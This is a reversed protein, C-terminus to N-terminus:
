PYPMLASSPIIQKEQGPPTWYLHIRSANETDLYKIQIKHPGATLNITNEIYDVPQPADVVLQDDIFVQAHGNLWLGFAYDGTNPIRITGRWDITYPRQLPIIHYYTDLYPDIRTFAPEGTWNDNQYYAGLLGNPQAPPSQYLWQSQVDALEFKYKTDDPPRWALKVSGSGSDATLLTTHNGIALKAELTQEGQGSGVQSNDITLTATAPTKLIFQYIGSTPAYLLGQWQAVFPQAIPASVPWDATITSEVRTFAPPGASMADSEMSGIWYKSTLGQISRIQEPPILIWSFAPNGNPTQETHYEAQPYYLHSQDIIWQNDLDVIIMVAKDGPEHIPLGNPPILPKTEIAPALFRITEHNNLFVSAYYTVKDPGGAALMKQAALSQIGNFAEWVDNSNAQLGFYTNANLYFILGGAGLTVITLSTQLSPALDLELKRWLTEVALAAFYIVAVTAGISRNAQPAEFDVSFIGGALSSFLVILFVFHFTSRPRSAALALGLVFFVGMVPDLMPIQPLNHRGNKDGQYNFMLLHKLTNSLVATGVDPADRMFFVSTERSNTWFIDPDTFLAFQVLPAIVLTTAIVFASLKAILVIPKKASASTAFRQQLFLLIAFTLVVLAFLRFATYFNLGLGFTLGALMFDPLRQTRRARFLLWLSLLEFFPATISPIGFRSFTIHWRLVALLFACILGFRNGYIERGLLFAVLVSVVGFTATVARITTTSIGFIRFAFAVLAYLHMPHVNDAVFIPRYTPDTLIRAAAHSINAEDRWTGFPIQNLQYFRMFIAIGLIAILSILAWKSLAPPGPQRSRAPFLFYCGAAFLIPSVLYPGWAAPANTPFTTLALVGALISLGILSLGILRFRGERIELDTILSAIM